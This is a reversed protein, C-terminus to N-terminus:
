AINCIAGFSHRLNFDGHRAVYGLKRKPGDSSLVPVRSEQHIDKFVSGLSIISSHKQLEPYKIGLVLLEEITIPRCDGKRMRILVETYPISKSFTFVEIISTRKTKNQIPFNNENIEKNILDYSGLRILQEITKTGDIEVEFSHHGSEPHGMEVSGPIRIGPHRNSIETM